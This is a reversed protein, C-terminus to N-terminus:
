VAIEGNNGNNDEEVVVGDLSLNNELNHLQEAVDSKSNLKFLQTSGVKRTPEVLELRELKDWIRYLTSRSIDNVEALEKKTYEYTPHDLLTDVVKVFPTDGFLEILTSKENTGMQAGGWPYPGKARKVWKRPIIKMNNFLSLDAVERHLLILLPLKLHKEYLVGVMRIQSM